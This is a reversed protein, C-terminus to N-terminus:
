VARYVSVTGQMQRGSFDARSGPFQTINNNNVRRLLAAAIMSIPRGALNPRIVEARNASRFCYYALSPIKNRVTEGVGDDGCKQLIM